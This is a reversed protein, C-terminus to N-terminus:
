KEAPAKGTALKDFDFLHGYRKKPEVLAFPSPDPMKMVVDDMTFNWNGDADRTFSFERPRRVESFRRSSAIIRTVLAPDRIGQMTSIENEMEDLLNGMDEEDVKVIYYNEGKEKVQRLGDKELQKLRTMWAGSRTRLRTCADPTIDLADRLREDITLHDM